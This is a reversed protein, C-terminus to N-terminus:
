PIAEIFITHTSADIAMCAISVQMAHNEHIQVSLVLYVFHYGKSLIDIIEYEMHLTGDASFMTISPCPGEIEFFLIWIKIWGKNLDLGEKIRLVYEIRPDNHSALLVGKILVEFIANIIM